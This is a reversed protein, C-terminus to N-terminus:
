VGVSFLEKGLSKLKNSKKAKIKLQM